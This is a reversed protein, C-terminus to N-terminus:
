FSYKVGIREPKPDSVVTEIYIEPAQLSKDKTIKEPVQDPVFPNREDPIVPPLVSNRGQLGTTISRYPMPM